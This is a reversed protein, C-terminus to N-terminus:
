SEQELARQIEEPTVTATGLEGVVIGAAINSIRAAEKMKAGVALAMSFVAILTDGAGSVDYVERAATPIHMLSGDKEFLAMGDEGLTVLVAECSLKSLLKKGVEKLPLKDHGPSSELAGYAEKRNPTIATVGKYYSFHKEKPDVIVPTKHKKALKLLEGLLAPQIVGKGYDEVIIVDTDAIVRRIFRMIDALDEKSLDEAKERDFRVVQQSHAIIRTKLTTRRTEDYIVGGTEIGERRMTKVLMRGELDRGVVGCPYVIGGLTRINNAVNLAGGPMYSERQVEVVPVPAEPSIRKVTGWVFQDLMFDGIVLIRAEKFRKLLDLLRSKKKEKM